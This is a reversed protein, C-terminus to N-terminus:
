SYSSHTYNFNIKKSKVNLEFRLSDDPIFNLKLDNLKLNLISSENPIFNVSIKLNQFM